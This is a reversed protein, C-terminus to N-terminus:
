NVECYGFRCHPASAPCGADDACTACSTAQTAKFDFYCGCPEAPAYSQLPELDSSRWVEMACKPVTGAAIYADLEDVRPAGTLFDVVRRAGDDVVNGGGDVAAFLHTPGWIWYQGSRINRKDFATPTSDPWYGCTQGYHQYALVRVKSRNADAVEGSVYGIAKQADGTSVLTVSNSNTRADVGMFKGAPVGTALSVFITAASNTDRRFVQTEDTWPSAQGQSGFGFVFYAAAASITTESSATNVIFDFSQVPGLFDGFGPALATVGPCEPASNGTSAFTATDGTISLTCTLEKGTADWYSATGSIAIPAVLAQYGACAGNASQYVVTSPTSAAAFRRAVEKLLPKQASGGAGYIPNPLTSCDLAHAEAAVTV